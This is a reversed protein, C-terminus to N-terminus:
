CSQSSSYWGDESYKSREEPDGDYYGGMGYAPYWAFNLHYKDAFETAERLAAYAAEVKKSLEASRQKYEADSLPFTVENSM